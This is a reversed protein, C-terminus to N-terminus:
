DSSSSEVNQELAWKFELRAYVVPVYLYLNLVKKKEKAHKEHYDQLDKFSEEIKKGTYTAIFSEISDAIKFKQRCIKHLQDYTASRVVQFTMTKNLKHVYKKKELCKIGFQIEFHSKVTVPRNTTSIRETHTRKLKSSLQQARERYHLIQSSTGNDNSTRFTQKFSILDGYLLGLDLLTKDDCFSAVTDDIKQLVFHQLLHSCGRKQLFDEIKQFGFVIIDGNASGNQDYMDHNSAM